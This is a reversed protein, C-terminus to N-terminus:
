TNSLPVRESGAAQRKPLNCQRWGPNFFMAAAWPNEFEAARQKPQRHSDRLLTLFRPAQDWGLIIGRNAKSAAQADANKSAESTVWCRKLVAGRARTTERRHRQCEGRKINQMKVPQEQQMSIGGERGRLSAWYWEGEKWIDPNLLWLLLSGTFPWVAFINPRETWMYHRDCM